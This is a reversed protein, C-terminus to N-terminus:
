FMKGRNENKERWKKTNTELNCFLKMFADLSGDKEYQTDSCFTDLTIQTEKVLVLCLILMGHYYSFASYLLQKIFYPTSIPSCQFFQWYADKILTDLYNQRSFFLETLFYLIYAKKMQM